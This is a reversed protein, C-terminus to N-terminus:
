QPVKWLRLLGLVESKENNRNGVITAEIAYAYQSRYVIVWYEYTATTSQSAAPPTRDNFVLTAKGASTSVTEHSIVASHNGVVTAYREKTVYSPPLSTILLQIFLNKWRVSHNPTVVKGDPLTLSTQFLPNTQAKQVATADVRGPVKIANLNYVSYYLSGSSDNATIVQHNAFALYEGNGIYASVSPVLQGMRSHRQSTWGSEMVYISHLPTNQGKLLNYVGQFDTRFNLSKGSGTFVGFWLRNMDPHFNTVLGWNLNYNAGHSLDAHEAIQVDRLFWDAVATKQMTHKAVRTQKQVHALPEVANPSAANACGSIVTAMVASIVFGMIMRKM